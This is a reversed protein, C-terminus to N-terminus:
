GAWCVVTVVTFVNTVAGVLGGAVGILWTDTEAFVTVILSKANVGCVIVTFAPAMTRHSFRSETECRTTKVSGVPFIM